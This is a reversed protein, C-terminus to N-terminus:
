ELILDINKVNWIGIVIDYEKVIIWLNGFIHFTPFDKFQYWLVVSPQLHKPINTLINTYAIKAWSGFENLIQGNTFQM